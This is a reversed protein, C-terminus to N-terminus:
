RMNFIEDRTFTMSKSAWIRGSIITKSGKTLLLRPTKGAVPADASASRSSVARFFVIRTQATPVNTHHRQRKL